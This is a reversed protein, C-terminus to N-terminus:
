SNRELLQQALMSLMTRSTTPKLQKLARQAKHTYLEVQVRANQLTGTQEYIDLVVPIIKNTLNKKEVVRLLMKRNNGKSKELANLLLFTKKGELVDGGIPKGLQEETGTIDLLDDQIQFALGLSKGFTRLANVERTTGGGILGGLECSASIVRATKKEIMMLYEDLTVDNRTEFEKDFGQGECVQIFADTFVNMMKQMNDSKTKLLSQYAYAIMEDGSLIAVNTDWKTHVTPRGRRLSSNDMVDDHVLTFNHLTEMAVAAHLADGSLGGVAECALLVLVARVRKGGAGLVYNMPQYVSAPEKRNVLLRLQREIRRKYQSYHTQFQQRTLPHYPTFIHIHSLLFVTPSFL